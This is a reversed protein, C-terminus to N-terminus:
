NKFLGVAMELHLDFMEGTLILHQQVNNRIGQQTSLFCRYFPFHFWSCLHIFSSRGVAGPLCTQPNSCEPQPGHPTFHQSIRCSAPAGLPESQAHSSLWSCLSNGERLMLESPPLSIVGSFEYGCVSVGLLQKGPQIYPRCKQPPSSLKCHRLNSVVM